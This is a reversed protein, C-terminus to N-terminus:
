LYISNTNLCEDPDKFLLKCLIGHVNTNEFDDWQCKKTNPSISFPYPPCSEFSPGYGIFLAKMDQVEAPDYGHNGRITWQSKSIYYGPNPFALIPPIRHSDQYNLHEPVEERLHIKFTNSKM